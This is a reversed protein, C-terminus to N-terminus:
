SINMLFLETEQKLNKMALPIDWKSKDRKEVYNSVSRLQVANVNHYCCAYLFAAGEMTEIDAKTRKRIQEISANNGHVKNVTIGEAAKLHKLHQDFVNEVHLKGQRFPFLNEDALGLQFVDLFEQDDEAGLDGFSDTAVNVVEGLQLDHNLAGALGINLALDYKNKQLQMGMYFATLMIGVGSILIDISHNDFILTSIIGSNEDRDNEKFFSVEVATAIVILMKM